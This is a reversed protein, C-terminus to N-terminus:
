VRAAAFRHERTREEIFRAIDRLCDQEYCTGYAPNFVYKRWRPFWDITGLEVGQEKSVVSWRRTKCSTTTGADEFRIWKGESM